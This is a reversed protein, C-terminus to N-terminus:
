SCFQDNWPWDSDLTNGDKEDLDEEEDVSIDDCLQKEETVQTKCQSDLRCLGNTRVETEHSIQTLQVYSNPHFAERSPHHSPEALSRYLQVFHFVCLLLDGFAGFGALLLSWPFYFSRNPDLKLKANAAIDTTWNFVVAILLCVTFFSSFPWYSM